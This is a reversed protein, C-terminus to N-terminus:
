AYPFRILYIPLHLILHARVTRSDIWGARAKLGTLGVLSVVESDREYGMKGAIMYKPKYSASSVDARVYCM